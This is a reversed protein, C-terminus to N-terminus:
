DTIGPTPASYNAGAMWIRGRADCALCPYLHSIEGLKHIYYSPGDGKKNTYYVISTLLGVPKVQIAPYDRPDGHQGGIIAALDGLLMPKYANETWFRQALPALAKDAVCLYLRQNPHDPDYAVHSNSAVERSFEIMTDRERRPHKRNQHNPARLHLRVLRGCEILTEPMDSDNWDVVKSPKIGWHWDEYYNKGAQLQAATLNVTPAVTVSRNKKAKSSRM